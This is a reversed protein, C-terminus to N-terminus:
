LPSVPSIFSPTFLIGIFTSGIYRRYKGDQMMTMMVFLANVLFHGGSGDISSNDIGSHFIFGM